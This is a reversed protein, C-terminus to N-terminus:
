LMCMIKVYKLNEAAHKLFYIIIHHGHHSPSLRGRKEEMVVNKDLTNKLFRTTWM